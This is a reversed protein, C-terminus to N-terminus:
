RICVPLIVGASNSASSARIRAISPASSSFSFMRDISPDPVHLLSKDHQQRKYHQKRRKGARCQSRLRPIKQVAVKRFVIRRRPLNGASAEASRHRLLVAIDADDLAVVFRDAGRGAACICPQHRLAQRQGFAALEGGLHRQARARRDNRVLVTFNGHAEAFVRVIHVSFEIGYKDLVARCVAPDRRIRVPCAGVRQVGREPM